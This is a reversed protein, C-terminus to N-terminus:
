KGSHKMSFSSQYCVQFATKETSQHVGKKREGECCIREGKFSKRGGKASVMNGGGRNQKYKGGKMTTKKRKIKKKKTVQPLTQKNQHM